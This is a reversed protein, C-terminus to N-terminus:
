AALDRLVARADAVATVAVALGPRAGLEARRLVRAADEVWSVCAEVGPAAAAGGDLAPEPDAPTVEDTCGQIALIAMGLHCYVLDWAPDTCLLDVVVDSAAELAELARALEPGDVGDM